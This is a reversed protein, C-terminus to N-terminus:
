FSRAYWLRAILALVQRRVEPDVGTREVAADLHTLVAAIQDDTITLHEHAGRLDPVAGTGGGGLTAALWACQGAKLSPLRKPEFHHLVRPDRTLREYLEDVIKAIAPAGGVREFLTRV